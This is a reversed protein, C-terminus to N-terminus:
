HSAVNAWYDVTVAELNRQLVTKAVDFGQRLNKACSPTEACINKDARDNRFGPPNCDGNLSRGNDDTGKLNRIAHHQFPNM